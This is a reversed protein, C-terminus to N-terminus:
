VLMTEPLRISTRNVRLQRSVGRRMVCSVISYIMVVIGDYHPSRVSFIYRSAVWRRIHASTARVIAADAVPTLACSTCECVHNLGFDCGSM